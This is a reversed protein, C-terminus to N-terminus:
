MRLATIYIGIAKYFTGEIEYTDQLVLVTIESDRTFNYDEFSSEILSKEVKDIDSTSYGKIMIFPVVAHPEIYDRYSSSNLVVRTTNETEVVKVPVDDPQKDLESASVPRYTINM